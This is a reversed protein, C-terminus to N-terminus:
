SRNERWEDRIVFAPKCTPNTTDPCFDGFAANEDVHFAIPATGFAVRDAVVAGYISMAATSPSPDFLVTSVPAYFLGFVSAGTWGDIEVAGRAFVRVLSPKVGAGYAIQGSVLLAPTGDSGDLQLTVPQSLTAGSTPTDVLRLTGGAQITVHRFCYTGPLMCIIQGSWVTLSQNPPAGALIPTATGTPPNCDVLTPNPSSGCVADFAPLPPALLPPIKIKGRDISGTAAGLAGGVFATGHILTGSGDLALDSDTAVNGHAKASAPAYPGAVSSFSDFVSAAPITLSRHAMLGLKTDCVTDGDADGPVLCDSTGSSDLGIRRVTSSTSRSSGLFSGTVSVSRRGAADRAGVTTTFSGGGLPQTVSSTAAANLYLSADGGRLQNEVWAEGAEAVYLARSAARLNASLRQGSRTLVSSATALLLLALLVGMALVMIAGSERALGARLRM